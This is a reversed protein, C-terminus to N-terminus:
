KKTDLLVKLVGKQQAQEFAILAENFPFIADIFSEVDVLGKELLRLAPAFPGCRSGIVTLEDVVMMSMDVKISNHFTSKVILMGRPRVLSRAISFGQSSGTAEVVIDAGPEIEDGSMIVKIGWQKLLSLKREHHGMVVIDCGTLHLVQAILLGLKGDGVVIVRHSPRIHVQETVECAAALPETFVAWKDPVSDPVIHLLNVPLTFYDAMIGHRSNIGLTTRDPCHSKDGRLCSSCHGCYANIEGVVRKGELHPASEAREVVGVFEHGLVGCFEQYGQVIERDTTCIGCLHPHILAEKETPVPEPFQTDYRLTGDFFLARM